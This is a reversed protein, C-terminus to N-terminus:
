TRGCRSCSCGATLASRHARRGGHTRVPQVGPAVREGVLGDGDGAGAEALRQQAHLGAADAERDEVVHVAVLGSPRLPQRTNGAVLEDARHDLQTGADRREAYALPDHGVEIQGAAVTVETAESVLREA